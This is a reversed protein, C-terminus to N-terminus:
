EHHAYLFKELVDLPCDQLSKYFPRLKEKASNIVADSCSDILNQYRQQEVTLENYTSM